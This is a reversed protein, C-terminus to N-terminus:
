EFSDELAVHVAKPQTFHDPALVSLDSGNGSDKTGGHPMETVDRQHENIWIKGADLAAAVKLGTSLSRTWIGTALAYPSDNALRVADGVGECREVMVAPGFIETSAIMHADRVGILLGPSLFWGRDGVPAPRLIAHAGEEVARDVLSLVAERRDASILPGLETGRDRPDGIAVASLEVGLRDILWDHVKAVAIVRTAATCDQEANDLAARAIM